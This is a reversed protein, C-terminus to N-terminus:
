ITNSCPARLPVVLGEVWQGQPFLPTARGGVLSANCERERWILFLVIHIIVDYFTKLFYFLCIFVIIVCFLGGFM